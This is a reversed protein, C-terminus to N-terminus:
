VEDLRGLILEAARVLDGLPAEIGGSRDNLAIKVGFTVDGTLVELTNGHRFADEGIGTVPEIMPYSDRAEEFVRRATYGRAHLEPPWDAEAVLSVQVYTYSFFATAGFTCVQQGIGGPTVDSAPERLDEGALESAEGTTLLSCVPPVPGHRVPADVTGDFLGVSGEPSPGPDGNDSCAAAVAVVLAATALTRAIRNLPM